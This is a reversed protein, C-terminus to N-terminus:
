IVKQNYSKKHPHSPVGLSLIIHSDLTPGPKSGYLTMLLLRGVLLVLKSLSGFPYSLLSLKHYVFSVRRLISIFPQFTTRYLNSGILPYEIFARM